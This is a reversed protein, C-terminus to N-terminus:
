RHRYPPIKASPVNSVWVAPLAARFRLPFTIMYASLIVWDICTVMSSVVAPAFLVLYLSFCPMVGFAFEFPAFDM